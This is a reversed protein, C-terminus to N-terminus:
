RQGQSFLSQIIRNHSQIITNRIPFNSIIQFPITIISHVKSHHRSWSVLQMMPKRRSSHITIPPRSWKRCHELNLSHSHQRFDLRSALRTAVFRRKSKSQTIKTLIHGAPVPNIVALIRVAMAVRKSSIKLISNCLRSKHDNFQILGQVLSAVKCFEKLNCAM